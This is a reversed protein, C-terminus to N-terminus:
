IHTPLHILPQRNLPLGTLDTAFIWLDNTHASIQLFNSLHLDNM